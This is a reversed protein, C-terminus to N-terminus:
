KIGGARGQMGRFMSEVRQSLGAELKMEGQVEKLPTDQLGMARKSIKGRLYKSNNEKSENEACIDGFELDGLAIFFSIFVDWSLVRFLFPKLYSGFVGLGDGMM